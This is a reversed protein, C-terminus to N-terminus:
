PTTTTAGGSPPSAQQQQARRARARARRDRAKRRDARAKQQATAASSQSQAPTAPAPTTAAPPKTTAPATQRSKELPTSESKTSSTGAAMLAISMGLAGIAVGSSVLLFSRALSAPMRLPGLKGDALAGPRSLMASTLLTLVGFIVGFLPGLFSAALVPVVLAPMLAGISQPTRLETQDAAAKRQADALTVGSPAAIPPPAAARRRGTGAAAQYAAV